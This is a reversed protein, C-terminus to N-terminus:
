KTAITQWLSEINQRGVNIPGFKYVGSETQVAEYEYSFTNEQGAKLDVDWIIQGNEIKAPGQWVIKIDSPVSDKIQGQFDKDAKITIIMPYRNPSATNLRSAGSRKVDLPLNQSVKIKTEITKKTDLNTLKLKYDGIKELTQSAAYDPDNTAGEGNCTPSPTVNITSVSNEPNTIELKLNSTCLTKGTEDLSLIGINMKEGPLYNPKDTNLILIGKALINNSSLNRILLRLVFIICLLLLIGFIASLLKNDLFVKYLKKM